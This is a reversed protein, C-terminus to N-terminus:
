GRTDLYLLWYKALEARPGTVANFAATAGAKDGARALAAGLRFNILNSDAGTKGLAARYMEAAKAHDGFGYHADGSRVAIRAQPDALADRAGEALYAQSRGAGTSAEGHLEQFRRESRSAKGSAFAEDLVLKAEGPFRENFALYAHNYIEANDELAGVARQLRLVDLLVGEDPQTINRYIRLSERWNETTPYARVWDRSIQVAAPLRANYSLALARKFWSEDARAGTAGVAAIARQLLAVAEATRGQSNRTEGLLVLIEPNSPNLSAAREYAAAAREWDQAKSWTGGLGAYLDATKAADLYGSAATADIAAAIASNDNAAMAAKLQLQAIIFRDEKTRAVAQAAALKAPIEAANNANVATQLEVIARLAGRSPTVQPAPQQATQSQGASSMGQANAPVAACIAGIGAALSLASKLKM